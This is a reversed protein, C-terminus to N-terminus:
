AQTRHKRRAAAIGLLGIGLLALGSPEPVSTRTLAYELNDVAIGGPGGNSTYGTLLIATLNTFFSPIVFHQFDNVGDPGDSLGDLNLITSITSGGVLYGTIEILNANPRDVLSSANDPHTTNYFEGADLSMLDFAAGDTRSILFAQGRNSEYSLTTTGNNSFNNYLRGPGVTHFHESSIVFGGSTVETQIAATPAIEDFTLIDAQAQMAVLGLVVSGVLQFTRM